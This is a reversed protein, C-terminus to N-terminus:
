ISAENDFKAVYVGLIGFEQSEVISHFSKYIKESNWDEEVHVEYPNGGWADQPYHIIPISIIAARAQKAVKDWVKVADEESMHEIVDGFIVVDYDFNDVNRIDDNVVNNYRSRLNYESIYPEWVEVADVIIENGMGGRIIDLYTGVGPGVDLITKPNLEILKDLTWPKGAPDSGPMIKKGM